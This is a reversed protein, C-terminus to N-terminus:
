KSGELEPRIRRIADLIKTYEFDHAFAAFLDAAAPFASRLEHILDTMSTFDNIQASECLKALMEAPIRAIEEEAQESSTSVTPADEEYIFRLGLHTALLDIIQHERFPKRLFADCGAAIVKIRDEDLISASLVIVLTERGNPASKITQAAQYGNIVPMRLDMWILHPQWSRWLEIAEEGNAAEQLEFGFPALLNALLRRNDPNDDAIVMRYLPQGPELAIAHKIIEPVVSDTLQSTKAHIDFQFVSGRGSESQATLDGGMLQAFRRSIPLGLGTGEQARRGTETQAFPEFLKEMEEPAVGAGTDEIEFHM